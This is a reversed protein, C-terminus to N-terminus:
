VTTEPPIEPLVQWSLGTRWPGPREILDLFKCDKLLMELQRVSYGGFQEDKLISRTGPAKWRVIDVNEAVKILAAVATQLDVRPDIQVIPEIMMRGFM